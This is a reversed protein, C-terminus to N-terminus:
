RGVLFVHELNQYVLDWPLVIENYRQWDRAARCSADFPANVYYRLGNWGSSKGPTPTEYRKKWQDLVGHFAVDLISQDLEVPAYSPSRVEFLANGRRHGLWNACSQLRTATRAHGDEEKEFLPRFPDVLDKHLLLMIRFAAPDLMRHQPGSINTCWSGHSCGVLNHPSEAAYSWLAPVAAIHVGTIHDVQGPFPPAKWAMLSPPPEMGPPDHAVTGSYDEWSKAPTETRAVRNAEYAEPSFDPLAKDSRPRKRRPHQELSAQRWQDSVSQAKASRCALAWDVPTRSLDASIGQCTPPLPRDFFSESLTSGDVGNLYRTQRLFQVQAVSSIECHLCNKAAAAYNVEPLTACLHRRLQLWHRLSADGLPSDQLGAPFGGTPVPVNSFKQIGGTELIGRPEVRFLPVLNDASAAWSRQAAESYVAPPHGDASPLLSSSVNTM